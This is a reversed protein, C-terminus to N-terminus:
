DPASIRPSTSGSGSGVLRNERRRRLKLLRANARSEIAKQLDMGTFVQGELAHDIQCAMQEIKLPNRAKAVRNYPKNSRGPGYYVVLRDIIASKVSKPDVHVGLRRLEKLLKIGSTVQPLSPDDNHILRTSKTEHNPSPKLAHMFGWEVIAKQLSTSFLIKLPHLPHSTPVQAPVRYRRGLRRLGQATRADSPGYWSALFLCLEKLRTFQGLMGLRRIIERWYTVPVFSGSRMIGKLVNIGLILDDKRNAMKMPRRGSQRPRLIKRLIYSTTMTKVVTGEDYMRSLADLVSPLDGNTVLSRLVLNSTEIEPSKSGVLRIAFTRRYQPWDKARAYSSLLTEQLKWDELQDPHQDSNLLGELFDYKRNRAFSEVARAFLSNGISVGLSKLQNIRIVISKPDPERLAIAQLSLPGIEQVGLAHVANIAVDLSVWNTAFWRAGLNDNYAKAPVHFAEGHILNMMERSIKTNDNLTRSMNSPVGAKVLSGTVQVAKPPDYIALFHVLPEVMKSQSPLDGNRMFLTHWEFAAKFDEQECFVPVVKAYANRYSSKEYIKWLGILDGRRMVTHRCLESFGRPGPPHRDILRTHWQVAEHGRDNLLMYQIITTYLKPWRKGTSDLMKDAYRWVEELVDKQRFGLALFIMWCKNAARGEFGQKTPLQINRQQIDEWFELVGTDGYIRQRYQLLRLWLRPDLSHRPHSLLRQQSTTVVRLNSEFDLEDERLRNDAWPGYDINVKQRLNNEGEIAINQIISTPIPQTDYVDDSEHDAVGRAAVAWTAHHRGQIHGKYLCIQSRNAPARPIDLVPTGVLLRLLGLSSPRSLLRQLAPRM